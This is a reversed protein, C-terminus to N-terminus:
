CSGYLGAQVTSPVYTPYVSLISFVVYTSSHRSLYRRLMGCAKSKITRCVEGYICATSKIDQLPDLVGVRGIIMDYSSPWAHCSYMGRVCMSHTKLRLCNLMLWQGSVEM